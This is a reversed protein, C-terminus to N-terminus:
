VAGEELELTLALLDLELEADGPVHADAAQGQLETALRSLAVVHHQGHPAHHLRDLVLAASEGALVEVDAARGVGGHGGLVAQLDGAQGIEEVVLLDAGALVVGVADLVLAGGDGDGAARGDREEDAVGVVVDVCVM